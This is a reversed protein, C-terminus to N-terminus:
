GAARDKARATHVTREIEATVAQPDQLNVCHGLMPYQVYRPPNGARTLIDTIARSASPPTLADRDGVMVTVPVTLNPLGATVDLGPLVKLARTRFPNPCSGIIAAVFRTQDVTATNSLARSRLLPGMLRPDLIPLQGVYRRQLRTRLGGFAEPLPVARSHVPFNEAVTDMLLVSRAYRRVAGPHRAAWSMLTVGGLSHGVIAAQQGAAITAALVDSLDDGLADVGFPREGQTSRGFGRLDLAIVRYRDALLNIQPNWYEIRCGWGHLLVIPQADRPGFERVHLRAGDATEVTAANFPIRPNRFLETATDGYGFETAVAPPWTTRLLEALRGDVGFQAGLATWNM